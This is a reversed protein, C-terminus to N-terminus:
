LYLLNTAKLTDFIINSLFLTIFFINQEIPITTILRTINLTVPDETFVFEVVKDGDLWFRNLYSYSTDQWASSMAYEFFPAAVGGGKRDCIDVIFDWALNMDTFIQFQKTTINGMNVWVFNGSYSIATKLVEIEWEEEAEISIQKLSEDWSNLQKIVIKENPIINNEAMLVM